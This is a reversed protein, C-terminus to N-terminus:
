ISFSITAWRALLKTCFLVITGTWAHLCISPAFTYSWENMVEASCPPYRDVERVPRTLWPPFFFGPVLQVPRQTPGSPRSTRSFVIEQRQRSELEPYNIRLRTV